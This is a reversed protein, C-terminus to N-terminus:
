KNEKCFIEKGPIAKGNKLWVGKKNLDDIIGREIRGNEIYYVADDPKLVKFEKLTM